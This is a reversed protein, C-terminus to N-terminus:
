FFDHSCGFSFQIFFSFIDSRIQLWPYDKATTCTFLSLVLLVRGLSLLLLRTFVWNYVISNAALVRGAFDGVNYLVFTLPTYLDNAWRKTTSCQQISVLFSTWVPFMTISTLFTIYICAVPSRIVRIVEMVNAQTSLSNARKVECSEISASSLPALSSDSWEYTKGPLLRTTQSPSGPLNVSAVTSSLSEQRSLLLEVGNASYIIEETECCKRELEDKLFTICSIGLMCALLVLSGLFFFGFVSWDIRTYGVCDAERLLSHSPSTAKEECTTEFFLEPSRLSAAILHVLSVVVGAAGQGMLHPNMAVDSSFWGACAVCGASMLSNALGCLILSVQAVFRVGPADVFLVSLSQLGMVFATVSFPVWIFMVSINTVNEGDIIKKPSVVWQFTLVAGMSLVMSFTYLFVLESEINHCTRTEFYDKANTFANWPVLNGIGLLAFICQLAFRPNRKFLPSLIHRRWPRPRRPTPFTAHNSPLSMGVFIRADDEAQGIM